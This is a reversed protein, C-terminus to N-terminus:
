KESIKQRYLSGEVVSAMKNLDLPLNLFLAVREANVFANEIVSNYNIFVVNINGQKLLWTKINLLHRDFKLAMEEDSISSNNQGRRSLMTRQSALMENMNRKMFVIKYEFSPPLNYLLASVMKFVRGRCGAVWSCDDKINKVNEFEYYGRPNDADAQRIGDTVVHIGGAELLQMMMSTGSRPLGSVIYVPGPYRKTKLRNKHISTMHNLDYCFKDTSAFLGEAPRLINTRM